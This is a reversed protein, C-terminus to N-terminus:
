EAGLPVEFVLGDNGDPASGIVAVAAAVDSGNHVKSLVELWLEVYERGNRLSVTM